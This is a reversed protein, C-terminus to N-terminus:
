RHLIPNLRSITFPEPYTVKGGQDLLVDAGDTMKFGYEKHAIPFVTLNEISWVFIGSSGLEGCTTSSTSVTSGTILDYITITVSSGSAFYGVANYIGGLSISGSGALGLNLGWGLFAM